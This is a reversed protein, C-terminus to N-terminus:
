VRLSQADVYDDLTNATMVGNVDNQLYSVEPSHINNNNDTTFMPLQTVFNDIIVLGVLGPM